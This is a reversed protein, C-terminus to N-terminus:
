AQQVPLMQTEDVPYSDYKHYLKLYKEPDVPQESLIESLGRFFGERNQGPNFLLHLAVEEESNNSFGHPTMRPVYVVSGAPAKIASDMLQVTLVGKQVIFTEDMFRHYHLRAGITWPKLMIEYVGLQGNSLESTIKLTIRGSNLALEEGEGPYFVVANNTLDDSLYSSNKM